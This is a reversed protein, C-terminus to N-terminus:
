WWSVVVVVLDVVIVVVVEVVRVVMVVVVVVVMVHVADVVLVVLWAWGGRGNIHQNNVIGPHKRRLGRKLPQTIGIGLNTGVVKDIFFPFYISQDTLLQASPM